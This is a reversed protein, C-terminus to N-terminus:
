RDLLGDKQRTAACAVTRMTTIWTSSQNAGAFIRLRYAPPLAPDLRQMGMGTLTIPAPLVSLESVAMAGFLATASSPRSCEDAEHPKALHHLWHSVENSRIRMRRSCHTRCENVNTQITALASHARPAGLVAHLAVKPFRESVCRIHPWLWALTLPETWWKPCCFPQPTFAM